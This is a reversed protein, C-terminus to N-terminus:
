CLCFPKYIVRNPKISARSHHYLCLKKTALKIKIFINQVFILDPKVCLVWKIGFCIQICCSMWWISRAGHLFASIMKGQMDNHCNCDVGEAMKHKHTSRYKCFKFDYELVSYAINSVITPILEVNLNSFNGFVWHM